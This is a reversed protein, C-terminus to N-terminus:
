ERPVASSSAATSISFTELIRERGIPTQPLLAVQRYAVAHKSLDDYVIVRGHRIWLGDGM